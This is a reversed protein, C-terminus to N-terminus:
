GAEAVQPAVPRPRDEAFLRLVFRGVPGSRWAAVRAAADSGLEDLGPLVAGYGEEPQPLLVPTAMCALALDAATLSQGVLYRRGAVRPAWREFQADIKEISRAVHPADVRLARIVSARIVPLLASTISAQVRGVNDRILRRVLAPRELLANYAWRRTHPGLGDHLEAEFAEIAEVHPEPYLTRASDVAHESAFRVIEGSDQLVRGDDTVLAPLSFPSSVRDRRGLRGRTGWLKGFMHAMPVYGSEEYALGCHDLAWRARESYHSFSITILRM